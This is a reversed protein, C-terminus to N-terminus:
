DEKFYFLDTPAGREWPVQKSNSKEIVKIRTKLLVDRFEMNPTRIYKILEGTFLGNENKGDSATKGIGTSYVTISGAFGEQDAFGTPEEETNNINRTVIYPDNRCADLIIINIEANASEMSNFVEQLTLMTENELLDYGIPLLYNEGDKEVGHGAYYFIGVDYNKLSDTFTKLALKFVEPYINKHKMVIFNSAKLAIEMSDADNTANKLPSELYESNGVVLALRKQYLFTYAEEVIENEENQAIIKITNLGREIIIELEFFSIQKKTTLKKSPNNILKDNHYIRFDTIKSVSFVELDIKLNPVFILNRKDKNKNDWKVSLNESNNIKIKVINSEFEQASTNSYILQLFIFGILYSILYSYKM